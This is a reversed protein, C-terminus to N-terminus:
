CLSNLGDSSIGRLIHQKNFNNKRKFGELAFNFRPNRTFAYVIIYNGLNDIIADCDLHERAWKETGIKQPITFEFIGEQPETIEVTVEVESDAKETQNEPIADTILDDKVDM